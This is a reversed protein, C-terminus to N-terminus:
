FLIRDIIMASIILAIYWQSYKLFRAAVSVGPQRLVEIALYIFVAGLLLATEAYLFNMIGLITPLLTLTVLLVSYYGIQVRTVKKGRLVSLMPLNARAFDERRVLSLAWYYTPAWYFIIAFLVLSKISLSGTAAAWGVLSPIGWAAAGVFTNHTSRRKFWYTYVVVYYIIGVLSISAALLNTGFWLVFFSLASLILGFRKAQIPEMQEAPLPRNRTRPMLSDIDRDLYCNLASAGGAALAGGLLAFIITGISPLADTAIRMAAATILLLLWMDQPKTLSVYERWTANSPRITNSSTLQM